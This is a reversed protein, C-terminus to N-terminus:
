NPPVLTREDASEDVQTVGLGSGPNDLASGAFERRDDCCIARPVGRARALQDLVRVVRQRCRAVDLL